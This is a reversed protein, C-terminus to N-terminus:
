GIKKRIERDACMVAQFASFVEEITPVAQADTEIMEILKQMQGWMNKYESKCNITKYENTENLYLEILDGEEIDRYRHANLIISIRGKLGIFEKVNSSALNKSWGAEYYGVCGNKLQVNIIGYNYQDKPLDSDIASGFGDVKIISSQAFWQIVDMYHVGCDVIPSCDELLKKYRAWDKCHHNQVMRILTLDGIAGKQILEAVKQYTQNHRLVHSILVKCDSAKVIDMFEKGEQMTRGIPKECIVHKKNLLCDKAISLHTNVYTAVIVIDVDSRILYDRYDTSWSGAKYMACFEQARKPDVDVVGIVRIHEHYYIDRIHQRGIHGCGILVVGYEKKMEDGSKYLYKIGSL